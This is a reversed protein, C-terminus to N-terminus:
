ATRRERLAGAAHGLVTVSGSAIIQVGVVCRM